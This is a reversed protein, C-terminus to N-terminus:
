ITKRAVGFKDVAVSSMREGMVNLETFYHLPFTFNPELSLPEEVVKPYQCIATADQMSTLDFVLVDHKKFSDIPISHIVDRFKMAKMTTVHLLCNDAADFDVILQGSRLVEFQRLDFQQYWFLSETFSGTFESNTNM